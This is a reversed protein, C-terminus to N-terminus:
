KGERGTRRLWQRVLCLPRVGCECWLGKEWSGRGSGSWREMRERDLVRLM